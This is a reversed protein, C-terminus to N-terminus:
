DKFWGLDKMVMRATHRSRQELLIEKGTTVKEITDYDYHRITVLELDENYLVKYNKKLAEILNPIRDADNDACVSFNIASNQMMNVKVGHRAFHGFIDSMNEEIIFSFDRPSISILVQKMKFIFSPILSDSSTDNHIRTGREEPSLFSKVRLLIGKNQLPKITKPHIITAGYYALEIAERYSIDLLKETLEFWKPDANLMGPVDKWITVDTANLAYAIIAATYDSGERGLTTTKGKSTAGVFGQTVVLQAKERDANLFPLLKRNIAAKTKKWNVNAERHHDDTILFERVDMWKNKIGADNLYASIIRTSMMEGEPVIRDYIFDYASDPANETIHTIREFCSNVDAYVPHDNDPFLEHLIQNHFTRVEELLMATDDEKNYYSAALGELANTTKGMASVVVAIDEGEYLKLVEAVNRVSAADKVSAGGFKFVRM